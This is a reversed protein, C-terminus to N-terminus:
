GDRAKGLAILPQLYCSRAILLLYFESKLSNVHAALRERRTDARM